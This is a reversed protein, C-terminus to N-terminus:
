AGPGGPAERLKRRRERYVAAADELGLRDIAEVVALNCEESARVRWAVLVDVENEGDWSDVELSADQDALQVIIARADMGDQEADVVPGPSADALDDSGPPGVKQMGPESADYEAASPGAGPISGDARYGKLSEIHNADDLEADDRRYLPTEAQPPRPEAM